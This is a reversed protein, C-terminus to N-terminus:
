KDSGPLGHCVACTQKYTEAAALLNKEDAPVQPEAHPQKELYKDLAMHALHHEFPMDPASTAVPAKGSAFYAYVGAAVGLVGLLIGLLLGKLMNEREEM